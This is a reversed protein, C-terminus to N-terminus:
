RGRRAARGPPRRDPARRRTRALRAPRGRRHSRERTPTGTGSAGPPRSAPGRPRRTSRGVGAGAGDTARPLPGPRAPRGRDDEGDPGGPGRARGPLFPQEHDQRDDDCSRQAVERHRRLRDRPRGAVDTRELAQARDDDNATAIKMAVPAATMTTLRARATQRDMVRPSGTSRSGHPRTTGDRDQRDDRERDGREARRRADPPVNWAWAAAFRRFLTRSMMVRTPITAAVASIM